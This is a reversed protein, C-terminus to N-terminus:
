FGRAELDFRRPKPRCLKKYIEVNKRRGGIDICLAHLRQMGAICAVDDLSFQWAGTLELSELRPLTALVGVSELHTLNELALVRLNPDAQLADISRLRAVNRLRLAALSPVGMAAAADDVVVDRLELARLEPLARLATANSVGASAISLGELRNMGALASADIPARPVLYLTRLGPFARLQARLDRGIGTLSLVRVNPMAPLDSPLLAGDLHLREPVADPDFALIQATAAGYLRLAGQPHGKLWAAMADVEAGRLPSRWQVRADGPLTATLGEDLPSRLDRFTRRPRECSATEM